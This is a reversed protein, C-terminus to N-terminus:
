STKITKTPTRRMEEMLHIVEEDSVQAFDYYFEGVGRFNVPINPCIFAEVKSRIKVATDYPAVPVAVIIKKPSKRRVLQIASLLTNGTAIGDDVILVTKNKLDVSSRNGMFKKFRLKLNERIEKIKKNTYDNSISFYDDLIEDELSVAGIALEPNSPHGIKKILLLDLPLKYHRAIAYGIPVGGRPVALVVSESDIYEKLLPILKEAADQRNNYLM